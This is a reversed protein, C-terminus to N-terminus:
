GRPVEVGLAYVTTCRSCQLWRMGGERHKESLSPLACKPCQGQQAASEQEPTMIALAIDKASFFPQGAHSPPVGHASNGTLWGCRCAFWAMQIEPILYGDDTTRKLNSVGFTDRMAQEFARRLAAEEDAPITLNKPTPIEVGSFRRELNMCRRIQSATAQGMAWKSQLEALEARDDKRDAM